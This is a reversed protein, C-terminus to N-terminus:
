NRKEFIEAKVSITYQSTFAPEWQQGFLDMEFM